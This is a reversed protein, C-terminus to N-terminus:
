SVFLGNVKRTDSIEICVCNVGVTTNLKDVVCCVILRLM